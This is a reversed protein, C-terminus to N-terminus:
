ASGRAFRAEATARHADRGGLRSSVAKGGRYTRGRYTLKVGKPWRATHKGNERRLWVRGAPTELSYTYDVETAATPELTIARWGPSAPRLGVVGEVIFSNVAASWGHATNFEAVPKAAEGWTPANADLWPQYMSRVKTM